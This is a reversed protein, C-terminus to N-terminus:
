KTKIDSYNTALTAGTQHRSAGASSLSPHCWPPPVVAGRCLACRSWLAVVAGLGVPVKHSAGGPAPM